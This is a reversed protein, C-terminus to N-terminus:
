KKSPQYYPNEGSAHDTHDVVQDIGEVSELISAEIGQKLTVDALGCGQCGGGLQVYATTGEVGLLSVWGGHAAIQPNIHTDFLVQIQNEREDFWLPNPNAYELGSVTPGKFQYHIAVGDLYKADRPECYVRLSGTEVVLDDPHVAAEEVLSLVHEFQGHSRGLIQLRLGAVPKPHSGVVERLKAVAEDTLKISPLKATSDTKEPM